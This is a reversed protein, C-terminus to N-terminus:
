RLRGVSLEVPAGLASAVDARRRVRDSLLEGLIVITIGLALGAVLGSLGDKIATKKASVAVIYPPDLISSLHITGYESQQDQRIEQNLTGISLNDNDLQNNLATENGVSQAKTGSASLTNLQTELNQKDTQLSQIEAELGAVETNTVNTQLGSRVKLFSKLLANNRALAQAASPASVKVVLISTGAAAAKYSFVPQNPALHLISMAGEAVTRTQLVNVDNTIAESPDVGTPEVLYLRSVSTVKSPLLVHLGAGLVLGVLAMTIWVRRRRRAAARLSRVSVPPGLEFAPDEFEESTLAEGGWPDIGIM